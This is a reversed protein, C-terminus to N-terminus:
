SRIILWGATVASKKGDVTTNKAMMGCVNGRSDKEKYFYYLDNGIQQWGTRMGGDKGMYYWGAYYLWDTAMAGSKDFYYWKGNIVKWQNALM